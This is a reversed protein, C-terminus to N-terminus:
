SRWLNGARARGPGGVPEEPSRFSIYKNINRRLRARGRGTHIVVGVVKRGSTVSTRKPMLGRGRERKKEIEDRNM